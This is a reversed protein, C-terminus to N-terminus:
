ETDEEDKPTDSATEDLSAPSAEEEVPAPGAHVDPVPTEVVPGEDRRISMFYLVTFVLLAIAVAFSFGNVLLDHFEYHTLYDSAWRADIFHFGALAKFANGIGMDVIDVVFCTVQYLSMFGGIALVHEKKRTFFLLVAAVLTLILCLSFVSMSLKPQIFIYQVTAIIHFITYYNLVLYAIALLRAIGLAKGSGIKVYSYLPRRPAKVVERPAKAAPVAETDTRGKLELATTNWAIVVLAAFSFLAAFGNAKVMQIALCAFAGIGFGYRARGERGKEDAQWELMAFIISAIAFLMWISLRFSVGGLWSRSFGQLLISVATLVSSVIFASM